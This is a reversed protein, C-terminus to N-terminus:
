SIFGELYLYYPVESEADGLFPYKKHLAKSVMLCDKLAPRQIHVMMMTAMTRVIYTRDGDTLRQESLSDETEKRFTPVVFPVPIKTSGQVGFFSM